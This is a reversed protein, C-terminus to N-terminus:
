IQAGRYHGSSMVTAGCSPQPPSPSGVPRSQETLSQGFAGGPAQEVPQQVVAVGDDAVALAVSHAFGCCVLSGGAFDRGVALPPSKPVAQSPGATM